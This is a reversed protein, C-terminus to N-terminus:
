NAQMLDQMVWPLIDGLPHARIPTHWATPLAYGLHYERTDPSFIKRKLLEIGLMERSVCLCNVLPRMLQKQWLYRGKTTNARKVAEERDISLAACVYAIALSFISKPLIAVKMFQNAEREYRNRDPNSPVYLMTRNAAGKHLLVHGVEHMVTTRYLPMYQLTRECACIRNEEPVAHGYVPGGVIVDLRRLCEVDLRIGLHNKALDDVDFVADDLVARAETELEQGSPLDEAFPIRRLAKDARIAPWGKGRAEYYGAMLESAAKWAEM